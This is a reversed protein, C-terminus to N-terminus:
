RKRMGAGRGAVQQGSEGYTVNKAAAMSTGGTLEAGFEYTGQSRGAAAGGRRQNAAFLKAKPGKADAM